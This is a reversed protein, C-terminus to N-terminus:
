PLLSSLSTAAEDRFLKAACLPTYVGQYCATPLCSEPPDMRQHREM